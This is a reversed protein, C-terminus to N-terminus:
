CRYYRKAADLTEANGGYALDYCIGDLTYGIDRACVTESYSSKLSPYNDNIYQIVSAQIFAKNAQLNIVLNDVTPDTDQYASFRLTVGNLSPSVGPTVTGADALATTIIAFNETARKTLEADETLLAIVKDRAFKIAEITATKTGSPIVLNNTISLYTRTAKVTLYNTNFVADNIVADIILGVDRSCKSQAYPLSPYTRNIFAITQDQIEAKRDLVQERLFKFEPEALDYDATIIVKPSIPGNKVIKSIISFENNVLNRATDSVAGLLTVNEGSLSGPNVNSLIKKTIKQAFDIAAVTEEGQGEIEIVDKAWYRLGAFTSQTTGEHLLDFALSDVVLGNDRNCTAQNYNAFLVGDGINPRKALNKFTIQRGSSKKVVGRYLVESAGRSVLGYNGFSSNSLNISCFGGGECLFSIDCCITFVSVLQTNGRNLMHIGIGGQNYQTFADVVMSRLGTTVAGDVRMGTGTTTISTVAQTYPSTVIEGASGDPPFCVAASPAIHGKFNMCFIYAGNYVWFIDKTPNKPRVTTNRLNDGVISVRAPVRLPNDEIYEGSKLFITTGPTAISLAKKVSAFSEGLTKGSNSDDGGKSVYLVNPVATAGIEVIKQIAALGGPPKMEQKTFLKGDASNIALEGLDLADLSPVKGPVDSRKFRINTSM